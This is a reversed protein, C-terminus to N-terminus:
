DDFDSEREDEEEWEELKEPYDAHANVDMDGGIKSRM